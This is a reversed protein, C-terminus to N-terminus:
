FDSTKVLSSLAIVGTMWTIVTAYWVPSAMGYNCIITHYVSLLFMSIWCGVTWFLKIHKM